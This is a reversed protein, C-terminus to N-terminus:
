PEGSELVTGSSHRDGARAGPHLCTCPWGHHHDRPSRPVEISRATAILPEGSRDMWWFTAAIAVATLVLATLLLRARVPPSTPAARGQVCSGRGPPPGQFRGLAVALDRASPPRDEPDFELTMEVIRVLPAPVGPILQDLPIPKQTRLKVLFAGLNHAEIPLRGSILQYLLVGVAYIDSAVVAREGRFLEPAMYRPTGVVEGTLTWTGSADGQDRAIGLDAIRVHGDQDLLINEPKLDRHVIGHDHCAQLGELVERV